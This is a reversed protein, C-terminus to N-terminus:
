QQGRKAKKPDEKYASVVFIPNLPELRTLDSIDKSRAINLLTVVPSLGNAKLEQCIFQLSELTAANAVISGCKQLRSCVIQLIKKIHGSSGGVFVANPDPLGTLVAPAAGHIIEINSCNFRRVNDSIVNIYDANKEIAFVTGRYALQSAEISVAGTGAGIDWVVNYESLRLRALSVARVELKTILSRRSAIRKFQNEPIGLMQRRNQNSAQEARDKILIMINLPSFLKGKLRNLSTRTIKENKSGIDECIFARCNELGHTRLVRAVELPSNKGDTLICVKRNHRVTEVIAEISRSHVSAFVADDWSEKIRAFALQMTSINPTIALSDKGVINILYRSIGFFNPDGTALVVIRKHGLNSKIVGTIQELNHGIAFKQALSDPMQNLLSKGGLLVEARKVKRRAATGLSLYGGPGVGIIEIKSIPM